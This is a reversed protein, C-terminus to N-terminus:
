FLAVGLDNLVAASGPLGAAAAALDAAAGSDAARALRLKGRAQLAAADAPDLALLAADLERLAAPADGNLDLAAALNGHAAADLPNLALARRATAVAAPVDGVLAQCVSLNIWGEHYSEDVALAARFAAEAAALRGADKHVVGLNNWAEQRRPNVALSQRCLREAPGPHGLSLLTQSSELLLRDVYPAYLLFGVLIYRRGRTIRHGGHRINSAFTAVRGHDPEFVRDLAM